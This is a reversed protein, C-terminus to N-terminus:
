QGSFTQGRLGDDLSTDTVGTLSNSLLLEDLLAQAQALDTRGAIYTLQSNYFTQRISLVQLFDAEGARYAQESLKLLREARPLVETRHGEVTAAASQYATAAQGLRSRISLETTELEKAARQYEAGAATRNGQNRNNLPM